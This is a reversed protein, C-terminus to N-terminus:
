WLNEQTVKSFCDEYVKTGIRRMWIRALLPKPHVGDKELLNLDTYTKTVSKKNHGKSDRWLDIVFRPSRNDSKNLERIKINLQDLQLDLNKDQEIFEKYNKHGRSHNWHQISLSPVDLFVVESRVCQATILEKLEKSKRIIYRINRDNDTELSIFRTSKEYYTM